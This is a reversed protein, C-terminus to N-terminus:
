YRREDIKRKATKVVLDETIKSKPRKIEPVKRLIKFLEDNINDAQIFNKLNSRIVNPGNKEKKFSNMVIYPFGLLRTWSIINNKNVVDKIVNTLEQCVVSRVSKQLVRILPISNKCENLLIGFLKVDVADTRKNQNQETSNNDSLIQKKHVNMHINLGRQNKALFGCVNCSVRSDGIRSESENEIVDNNAKEFEDEEKILNLFEILDNQHCESSILNEQHAKKIRKSKRLKIKDTLKDHHGLHIQLGKSSAFTRKCPVCNFESANTQLLNQLNLSQAGDVSFNISDSLGDEFGGTSDGM